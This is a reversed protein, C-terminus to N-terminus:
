ADLRNADRYPIKLIGGDRAGSLRAWLQASRGHGPRIAYVDM